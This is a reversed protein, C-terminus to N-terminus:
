VEWLSEVQNKTLAVTQVGTQNPLVFTIKDGLNKKDSKMACILNQLSYSIESISPLLKFLNQLENYRQISILELKLAIKSEYILGLAVSNAHDIKFNSVSEIAHATTHGANLAHRIGLDYEDLQIFSAKIQLCKYIIESLNQKFANLHKLSLLYNAFEPNIVGYKIIESLGVSFIDSPLDKIIQTYILVKKPQKFTGLLNKIGNADVATKGGICADVACLLTTPINIYNIGRMYISAVFAGLDCVTGGGVCIILDNRTFANQHLVTALETANQLTKLNEGDNLTKIFVQVNLDSLVGKLSSVFEGNVNSSVFLMAKNAGLVVGSFHAVNVCNEIISVSCETSCKYTFERM